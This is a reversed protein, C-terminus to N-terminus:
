ATQELKKLQKKNMNMAQLKMTETTLFGVHPLSKKLVIGIALFFADCRLAEYAPMFELEDARKQVFKDIDIKDDPLQENERRCLLAVTQLIGSLRIEILTESDAKQQMLVWEDLSEDYINQAVGKEILLDVIRKVDLVEIAEQRTLKAIDSTYVNQPLLYEFNNYVFGRYGETYVGQESIEKSIDQIYADIRELLEMSAFDKLTEKDVDCFKSIKNILFDFYLTFQEVESETQKVKNLYDETYILQSLYQRLHVEKADPFLLDVTKGSKHKIKFITM